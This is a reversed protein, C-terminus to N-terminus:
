KLYASATNLAVGARTAYANVGSTVWIVGIAVLTKEAAGLPVFRSLSLAFGVALTAVTGAFIAFFSLWGVLFGAMPHYAERLYVYNGGARPFMAGLEANALSGALALAGGALWAAFFWP